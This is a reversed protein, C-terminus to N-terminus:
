FLKSVDSNLKKQLFIHSIGHQCTSLTVPITINVLVHSDGSIFYLKSIGQLDENKFGIPLFRTKKYFWRQGNLVM